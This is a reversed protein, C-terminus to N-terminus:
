VNAVRWIIRLYRVADDRQKPEQVEAADEPEGTPTQYRFMKQPSTQKTDHMRADARRTEKFVCRM